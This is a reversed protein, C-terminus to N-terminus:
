PLVGHPWFSKSHTIDLHETDRATLHTFLLPKSNKLKKPM